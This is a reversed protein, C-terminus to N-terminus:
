FKKIESKSDSFFGADFARVETARLGISIKTCCQFKILKRIFIYAFKSYIVYFCGKKLM